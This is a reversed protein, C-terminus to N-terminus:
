ILLPPTSFCAQSRLALAKHHHERPMGLSHHGGSAPCSNIARLWRLVCCVARVFIKTAIHSVNGANSKLTGGWTGCDM